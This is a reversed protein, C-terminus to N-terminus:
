ENAENGHDNGKPQASQKIIAICRLCKDREERPLALLLRPSGFTKQYLFLTAAKVIEPSHQM